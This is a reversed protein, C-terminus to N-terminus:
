PLCTLREIFYKCSEHDFLYHLVYSVFVAKWDRTTMITLSCDDAAYALYASGKSKNARSFAVATVTGQTKIDRALEVSSEDMDRFSNERLIWESETRTSFYASSAISSAGDIESSDSEIGAKVLAVGSAKDSITLYRYQEFGPADRQGWSLCMIQSPRHVEHVLAFTKTEVILCIGDVGGIALFSGDPSWCLDEVRYKANNESSYNSLECKVGFHSGDLISIEGRSAIALLKGDPHWRVTQVSTSCSVEHVLKYNNDYIGCLKDTGGVAFICSEPKWDVCLILGFRSIETLPPNPLLIAETSCISIKGDFGAISIHSGLPNFLVSYIRDEREVQQLVKLDELKRTVEHLVIFLITAICGDGGVLLYQDDPSFDMSRIRGQISFEITEGFNRRQQNGSTPPRPPVHEDLIETVSVMGSEDGLAMLLPRTSPMDKRTRSMALATVASRRPIEVWVMGNTEFDLNSGQAQVFPESNQSLPSLASPSALPDFAIQFFRNRALRLRLAHGKRKVQWGQTAVDIDFSPSFPDFVDRRTSSEDSLPSAMDAFFATTSAGPITWPSSKGGHLGVDDGQLSLSPTNLPSTNNSPPTSSSVTSVPELISREDYGLAPEGGQAKIRNSSHDLANRQQIRDFYRDDHENLSEHHFNGICNGM